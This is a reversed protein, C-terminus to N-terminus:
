PISSTDPAVGFGSLGVETERELECQANSV